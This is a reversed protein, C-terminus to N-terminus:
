IPSNKSIKRCNKWFIFGQVYLAAGFLSVETHYVAFGPLLLYKHAKRFPVNVIQGKKGFDDVSRKLILKVQLFLCAFLSNNVLFLIERAM